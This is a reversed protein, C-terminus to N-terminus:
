LAGGTKLENYLKKTRKNLTVLYCHAVRCIASM